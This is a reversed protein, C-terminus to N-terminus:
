EEMANAQGRLWRDQRRVLGLLDRRAHRRIAAALAPTRSHPYHQRLVGVADAFTDLAAIGAVDAASLEPPQGRAARVEESLRNHVCRQTVGLDRAIHDLTERRVEGTTSAEALAPALARRWERRALRPHRAGGQSGAVDPCRDDLDQRSRRRPPRMTGTM